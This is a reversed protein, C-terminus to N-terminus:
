SALLDLFRSVGKKLRTTIPVEPREIYDSATKVPVSAPQGVHVCTYQEKEEPECQPCYPIPIWSCEGGGAHADGFAAMHISVYATYYKIATGCTKCNRTPLPANSDTNNAVWTAIAADFAEPTQGKAPIKM